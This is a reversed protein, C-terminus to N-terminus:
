QHANLGMAMLGQTYHEGADTGMVKPHHRLRLGKGPSNYMYEFLGDPGLVLANFDAGLKKPYNGPDAGAILWDEFRETDRTDGCAAVAKGNIIRIKSITGAKFWSGASSSSTLKTDAALIKGDFAITTM